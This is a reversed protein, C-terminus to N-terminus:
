SGGVHLLDGDLVSLMNALVGELMYFTEMSCVAEVHRWRAALRLVNALVGELM